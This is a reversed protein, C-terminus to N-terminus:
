SLDNAQNCHLVDKNFIKWEWLSKLLFSFILPFGDLLCQQLLFSIFQIYFFLIKQRLSSDFHCFGFMRYSYYWCILIMEQRLIETCNGRIAEIFSNRANFYINEYFAGETERFCTPINIIDRPMLNKSITPWWPQGILSINPNQVLFVTLNPVREIIEWEWVQRNYFSKKMWM